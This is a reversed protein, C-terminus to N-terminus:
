ANDDLRIEPTSASRGACLCKVRRPQVARGCSRGHRRALPRATPVPLGAAKELGKTSDGRVFLPVRLFPARPTWISCRFAAQGRRPRINVSGAGSAWPAGWLPRWTVPLSHCGMGSTVSRNASAFAFEILCVAGLPANAETRSDRDLHETRVTM